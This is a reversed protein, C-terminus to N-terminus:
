NDRRTAFRESAPFLTSMRSGQGTARRSPSSELRKWPPGVIDAAPIVTKPIVCGHRRDFSRSRGGSVVAQVTFGGRTSETCVSDGAGVALLVSSDKSGRFSESPKGHFRVVADVNERFSQGRDLYHVYNKGSFPGDHLACQLRHSSVPALHTGHNFTFITRGARSM